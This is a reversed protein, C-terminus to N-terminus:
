RGNLGVRSMRAIWHERQIRRENGKNEAFVVPAIRRIAHRARAYDKASKVAAIALAILFVLIFVTGFMLAYVELTYM